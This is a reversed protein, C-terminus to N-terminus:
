VPFPLARIMSTLLHTRSQPFENGGKHQNPCQRVETHGTEALGIDGIEANRLRRRDRDLRANRVLLLGLARQFIITEAAACM